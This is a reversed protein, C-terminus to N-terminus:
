DTRNSSKDPFNLKAEIAMPLLSALPYAGWRGPHSRTFNLLPTLMTAEISNAAMLQPRWSAAQRAAFFLALPIVVALAVWIRRNM